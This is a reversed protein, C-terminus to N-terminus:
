QKGNWYITKWINDQHIFDINFCKKTQLEKSPVIFGVNDNDAHMTAYFLGFKPLGACNKGFYTKTRINNM